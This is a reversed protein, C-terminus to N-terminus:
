EKDKLGKRACERIIRHKLCQGDYFKCTKCMHIIFKKTEMDLYDKEIRSCDEVITM